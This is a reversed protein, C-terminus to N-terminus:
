FKQRVFTVKGFIGGALLNTETAMWLEFQWRWKFWESEAILQSRLFGRM